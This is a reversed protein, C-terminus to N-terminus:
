EKKRWLWSWQGKELHYNPSKYHEVGDKFVILQYTDRPFTIERTKEENRLALDYTQSDPDLRLLIDFKIDSNDQIFSDFVVRVLFETIWFHAMYETRGAHWRITIRQPKGAKHFILQNEDGRIYNFTGDTCLDEISDLDLNDYYPDFDEYEIWNGTNDDFYEELAVYRYCLQQMKNELEDRSIVEFSGNNRIWGYYFQEAENFTTEKAHLTDFLVSRTHGRLWIAIIGFPGTGVVYDHFPDKPHNTLQLDWLESARNEDLPINIEYLKGDNMTLYRLSLRYPMAYGDSVMIDHNKVQGWGDNCTSPILVLGQEEPNDKSPEGEYHLRGHLIKIICNEVRSTFPIYEYKKM